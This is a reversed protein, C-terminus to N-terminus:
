VGRGRLADLRRTLMNHPHGVRLAELAASDFGELTAELVHAVAIEQGLLTVFVGTGPRAKIVQMEELERWARLVTNHSVRADAAMRRVPPLADGVELDGCVLRQLVFDVIQKSPTQDSTPDVSWDM